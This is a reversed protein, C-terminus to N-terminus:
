PPFAPDAVRRRLIRVTRRFKVRDPDIGAATAATCTLASIAYHTLLYGWIEQEAMAPSQSRLVRGSGKLVTKLERYGTEIRWRHHGQFQSTRWRFARVQPSVSRPLATAPSPWPQEASAQPLHALHSRAGSSRHSRVQPDPHHQRRLPPRRRHRQQRHQRGPRPGAQRSAPAILRPLYRGHPWDCSFIRGSCRSRAATTYTRWDLLCCTRSCESDVRSCYASASRATASPQARDRTTTISSSRPTDAAVASERAPNERSTVSIVIPRAPMTSPM